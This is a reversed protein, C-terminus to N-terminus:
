KGESVGSSKNIIKMKTNRQRMIGNKNTPMNLLNICEKCFNKRDLDKDVIYNKETHPDVKNAVIKAVCVPCKIVYASGSTSCNKCVIGIFSNGCYICNNM